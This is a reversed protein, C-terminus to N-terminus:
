SGPLEVGIPFLVALWKTDHFFVLLWDVLRLCISACILKVCHVLQHDREYPLTPVPFTRVEYMAPRFISSYVYV